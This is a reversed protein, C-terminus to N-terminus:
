WGKQSLLAGASNKIKFKLNMKIGLNLITFLTKLNVIFLLLLFNFTGFGVVRSNNKSVGEM